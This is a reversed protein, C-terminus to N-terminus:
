RIEELEKKLAEYRETWERTQEIMTVTKELLRQRTEPRMRKLNAPDSIFENRAPHDFLRRPNEIFREILLPSRRDEQGMEKRVKKVEDSLLRTTYSGQLVERALNLKAEVNPLKVLEAKHTYSLGLTDFGKEKFFVEQAAVRVMVSLTAPYVALDESKCLATYSASKYPNRSTAYEIDNNFFKELLYAGIEESGKYLTENAKENIFHVAEKVLEQNVIQVASTPIKRPASRFSKSQPTEEHQDATEAPSNEQKVQKKRPM